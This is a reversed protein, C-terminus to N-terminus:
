PLAREIASMLTVGPNSTCWNRVAAVNAPYSSLDVKSYGRKQNAWGSMWASLVQANRAPLKLYDGCTIRPMDIMVQASAPASFSCGLLLLCIAARKM